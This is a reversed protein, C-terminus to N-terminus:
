PKGGVVLGDGVHCTSCEGKGEVLLPAPEQNRKSCNSCEVPKKVVYIHDALKELFAAGFDTDLSGSGLSKILPRAHKIAVTLFKDRLMKDSDPTMAFAKEALELFPDIEFLEADILSGIRTAALMALAAVGYKDATAYTAIHRSAVLHANVHESDSAVFEYKFTYIWKFMGDLAKPDDDHLDIVKMDAEKMKTFLNFFYEESCLIAKHLNWKRDGCVITVDSLEGTRFLRPNDSVNCRMLVM